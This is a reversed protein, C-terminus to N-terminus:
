LIRLTVTVALSKPLIEVACLYLIWFFISFRTGVFLNLIKLSHVLVLIASMVLVIWWLVESLGGSSLACGVAVPTIWLGAMEVTYRRIATLAQAFGHQLVIACSIKLLLTEVIWSSILLLIVGSLYVIPPFCITPNVVEYLLITGVCGMTLFGLLRWPIGMHWDRHEECVVNASPYFLWSSMEVAETYRQCAVILYALVILLLVGQIIPNSLLLETSTSEMIEVATSVSSGGIWVSDACMVVSDTVSRTTDTVMPCTTTINQVSDIM